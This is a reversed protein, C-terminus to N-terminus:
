MLTSDQEHVICCQAQPSTASQLFPPATLSQRQPLPLGRPPSPGSMQRPPSRKAGASQRVDTQWAHRSSRIGALARQDSTKAPIFPQSDFM